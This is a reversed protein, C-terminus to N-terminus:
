ISGIRTINSGNAREIKLLIMRVKILESRKATSHEIHINDLIDIM